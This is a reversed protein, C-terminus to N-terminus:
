RSPRSRSQRSRIIEWARANADVARALEDRDDDNNLLPGFFKLDEETLGGDPAYVQQLEYGARIETPSIETLDHEALAEAFIQRRSKSPRVPLGKLQERLRSVEINKCETPYRKAIYALLRKRDQASLAPKYWRSRSDKKGNVWSYLIVRGSEPNRGVGAEKAVARYGGTSEEAARKTLGRYPEDDQTDQKLKV